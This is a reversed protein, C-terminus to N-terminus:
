IVVFGSNYPLLFGPRGPGAGLADQLYLLPRERVPM